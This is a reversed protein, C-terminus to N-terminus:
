DISSILTMKSDMHSGFVLNMNNFYVLITQVISTKTLFSNKAYQEIDEGGCLPCFKIRLDEHREDTIIIQMDADCDACYIHHKIM